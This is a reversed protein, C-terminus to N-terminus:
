WTESYKMTPLSYAFCCWCAHVANVIQTPYQQQPEGERPTHEAVATIMVVIGITCSFGYPVTHAGYCCIHQTLTM